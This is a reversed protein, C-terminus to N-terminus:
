NTLSVLAEVFLAIVLREGTVDWMNKTAAVMSKNKSFPTTLQNVQM